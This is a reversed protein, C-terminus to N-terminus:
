KLPTLRKVLKFAEEKNSSSLKEEYMKKVVKYTKEYEEQTYDDVVVFIINNEKEFLEVASKNVTITEGTEIDRYKRYVFSKDSNYTLKAKGDSMAYSGMYVYIKKNKIRDSEEETFIKKMYDIEKNIM